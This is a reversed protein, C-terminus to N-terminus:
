FVRFCMFLVVFYRFLLSEQALIEGAPSESRDIVLPPNYPAFYWQYNRFEDPSNNANPYDSIKYSECIGMDTANFIILNENNKKLTTYAFMDITGNLAIGGFNSRYPDIESGGGGFSIRLPARSRIM